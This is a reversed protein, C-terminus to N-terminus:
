YIWRGPLSLSGSLSCGQCHRKMVRSKFVTQECLSGLAVREPEAARYQIKVSKSLLHKEM